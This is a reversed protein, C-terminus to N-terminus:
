LSSAIEHAKEMYGLRKFVSRAEEKDEYFYIYFIKQLHSSKISKLFDQIKPHSVINLKLDLGYSLFSIVEDQSVNEGTVVDIIEVIDESELFCEKIDLSSHITKLKEIVGHHLLIEYAIEKSEYFYYYYSKEFVDKNMESIFHQMEKTEISQLCIKSIGSIFENIHKETLLEGTTVDVVEFLPAPIGEIPEETSPITVSPPQGDLLTPPSDSSKRSCATLLLTAMLIILRM